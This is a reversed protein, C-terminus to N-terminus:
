QISTIEDITKQVSILEQLKEKNDLDSLIKTLIPYNENSTFNRIVSSIIKNENLDGLLEISSNITHQTIYKLGTTEELKLITRNKQNDPHHTEPLTNQYLYQVIRFYQINDYMFESIKHLLKEEYDKM